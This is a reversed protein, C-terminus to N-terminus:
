CAVQLGLIRFVITHEVQAAFFTTTLAIQERVSTPWATAPISFPLCLQSPPAATHGSESGTALSPPLIRYHGGEAPRAPSPLLHDATIRGQEDGDSDVAVHPSDSSSIGIVIGSHSDSMTWSTRLATIAPALPTYATSHRSARSELGGAQRASWSSSWSPLSMDDGSRYWMRSNPDFRMSGWASLPGATALDPSGPSPVSGTSKRWQTAITSMSRRHSLRHAFCTDIGHQQRASGVSVEGLIDENTYGLVAHDSLNDLSLDPLMSACDSDSAGTFGGNKGVATASTCHLPKIEDLRAESPGLPPAVFNRNRTSVSSDILATPTPLGHPVPEASPGSVALSPLREGKGLAVHGLCGLGLVTDDSLYHPRIVTASSSPRNLVTSPQPMPTNAPTWHKQSSGFAPPKSIHAINPQSRREDEISTSDDWADVLPSPRTIPVDFSSELSRRQIPRRPAAPHEVRILACPQSQATASAQDDDLSSDLGLSLSTDFVESTSDNRNSDFPTYSSRMPLGSSSQLPATNGPPSAVAVRAGLMVSRVRKPVSPPVPELMQNLANGTGFQTWSIPSASVQCLSRRTTGLPPPNGEGSADINTPSLCEPFDETALQKSHSSIPVPQSQPRLSHALHRPSSRSTKVSDPRAEHAESNALPVAPDTSLPSSCLQRDQYQFHFSRSEGKVDIPARLPTRPRHRRMRTLISPKRAPLDAKVVAREADKSSPRGLFHALRSKRLLIRSKKIASAQDSSARLRPTKRLTSDASFSYKHCAEIRNLRVPVKDSPVSTEAGARAGNPMHPLARDLAVRLPGSLRRRRLSNQAHHVNLQYVDFQHGNRDEANIPSITAGADSGSRHRSVPLPPEPALTFAQGFEPTVHTSRIGASTSNTDVLEEFMDSQPATASRPQPTAASSRPLNAGRASAPGETEATSPLPVSLSTLASPADDPSAMVPPAFPALEIFDGGTTTTTSLSEARHPSCALRRRHKLPLRHTYLGAKTMGAGADRRAAKIPCRGLRKGNTGMVSKMREALREDLEYSATQPYGPRRSSRLNSSSNGDPTVVCVMKALLM